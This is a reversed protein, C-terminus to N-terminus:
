STEETPTDVADHSATALAGSSESRPAAAARAHLGCEKHEPSEWWWRGARVDEDPLTARTCPACGISRFGRAHLANVPVDHKRIYAWVDDETWAALPAIRLLGNAEDWDLVELTERTPSQDARLGTIWASTGALARRLPRVKRVECCRKRAAVSDRFLDIGHARVMEEVDSTDPFLVGVQIGYHEVSERILDYTEPFLRGTDLTFVRVGPACTAAMDLLVQDEPGFSSALVVRDGYRELAWAVLDVPSCGRTEYRLLDLQERRM